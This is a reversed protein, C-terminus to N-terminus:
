ETNSDINVNDNNINDNSLFVPTMVTILLLIVMVRNPSISPSTTTPM